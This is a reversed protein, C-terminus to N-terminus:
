LISYIVIFLIINYLKYVIIQIIDRLRIMMIRIKLSKKIYFYVM